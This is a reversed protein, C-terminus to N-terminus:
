HIISMLQFACCQLCYMNKESWFFEMRFENVIQRVFNYKAFAFGIEISRQEIMQGFDHKFQSKM